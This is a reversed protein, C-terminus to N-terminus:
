FDFNGQQGKNMSAYVSAVYAKRDVCELTLSCRLCSGVGKREQCAQVKQVLEDLKQEYADM